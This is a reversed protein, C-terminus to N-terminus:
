LREHLIRGLRERHARRRRMPNCKNSLMACMLTWSFNVLTTLTYSDVGDAVFDPLDASNPCATGKMASVDAHEADGYLDGRLAISLTATEITLGAVSRACFLLVLALLM